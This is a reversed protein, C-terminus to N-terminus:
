NFIPAASAQSPSPLAPWVSAAGQWEGHEQEALLSAPPPPSDQRLFPLAGRGGCVASHEQARVWRLWLPESFHQLRGGGRGMGDLPPKGSQPTGLM